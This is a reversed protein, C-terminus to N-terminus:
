SRSQGYFFGIKILLYALVCGGFLYENWQTATPDFFLEDMLSSGALAFLSISLCKEMYTTALFVVSGTLCLKAISDMLFWYWSEFYPTGVYGAIWIILAGAILIETLKKM